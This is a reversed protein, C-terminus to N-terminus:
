RLNGLRHQLVLRMPLLVRLGQRQLRLRYSQLREWAELCSKEPRPRGDSATGSTEKHWCGAKRKGAAKGSDALSKFSKKPHALGTGLKKVGDVLKDIPPAHISNALSDMQDTADEASKEINKLGSETDELIGLKADISNLDSTLDAFPNQEVEFGITVVDERITSM